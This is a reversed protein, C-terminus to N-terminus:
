SNFNLQLYARAEVDVKKYIKKNTSKVIENTIKNTERETNKLKYFKQQADEDTLRKNYHDLWLIELKNFYDFYFDTVADLKDIQKDSPIIQPSVLKLISIVAVICCAVIPIDKWISWGMVGSTSFVLIAINFYNLLRRRYGILKVCYLHNHKTQALEYWLRERM